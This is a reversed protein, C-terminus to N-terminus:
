KGGPGCNRECGKLPSSGIKSSPSCLCSPHSCNANPSNGSLTSRSAISRYKTGAPGVAAFRGCAAAATSLHSMCVSPRVSPCWVMWLRQRMSHSCHRYSPTFPLPCSPSFHFRFTKVLYTWLLQKPMLASSSAMESTLLWDHDLFMVCRECPLGTNTYKWILWYDCVQAITVEILCQMVVRVCSQMANYGWNRKQLDNGSRGKKKKEPSVVHNVLSKSHSRLM